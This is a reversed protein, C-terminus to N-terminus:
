IFVEQGSVKISRMYNYQSGTFLDINLFIATGYGPIELEQVHSTQKLLLTLLSKQMDPINSDGHMNIWHQQLKSVINKFENFASPYHQTEKILIRDDGHKAKGTKGKGHIFPIVPLEKTNM